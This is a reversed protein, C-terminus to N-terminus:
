VTSEPLLSEDGQDLAALGARCEIWDIEAGAASLIRKVAETVEPGIGDGPKLVVKHSMVSVPEM